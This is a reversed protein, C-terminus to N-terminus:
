KTSVPQYKIYISDWLAWGGDVYSFPNKGILVNDWRMM